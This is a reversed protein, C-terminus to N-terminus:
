VYEGVQFVACVRARMFLAVGAIGRYDRDNSFRELLKALSAGNPRRSKAALIGPDSNKENKNWESRNSNMRIYLM